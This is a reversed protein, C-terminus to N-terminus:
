RRADAGRRAPGLVGLLSWRLLTFLSGAFQM